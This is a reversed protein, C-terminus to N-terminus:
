FRYEIHAFSCSLYGYITMMIKLALPIFLFYDYYIYVWFCYVDRSIWFM